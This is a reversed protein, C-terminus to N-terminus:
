KPSTKGIRLKIHYPNTSETLGRRKMVAQYQRTLYGPWAGVAPKNTKTDVWGRATRTFSGKATSIRAGVPVSQAAPPHELDSGTTDTPIEQPAMIQIGTKSAAQKINDKSATKLLQLYEPPIKQLIDKDSQDLVSLKQTAPSPQAKAPAPINLTPEIRMKSAEQTLYEKLSYKKNNSNNNM